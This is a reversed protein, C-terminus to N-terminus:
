VGLLLLGDLGFVMSLVCAAKSPTPAAYEILKSQANKFPVTFERPDSVMSIPKATQRTKLHRKWSNDHRMEELCPTQTNHATEGPTQPRGSHFGHKSCRFGRAPPTCHRRMPLLDHFGGFCDFCGFDGFGGFVGLETPTYVWWWSAPFGAIIISHFM